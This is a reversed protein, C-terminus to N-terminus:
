NEEGRERRPKACDDGDAGGRKRGLRLSIWRAEVDEAAYIFTWSEPTQAGGHQRAPASCVRNGLLGPPVLPVDEDRRLSGRCLVPLRLLWDTRM